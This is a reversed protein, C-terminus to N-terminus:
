DGSHIVCASLHQDHLLVWCRQLGLAPCPV